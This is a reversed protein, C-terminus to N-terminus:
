PNPLPIPGVGAGTSECGQERAPLMALWQTSLVGMARRWEPVAVRYCSIAPAPLPSPLSWIATMRCMQELGRIRERRRGHCSGIVTQNCASMTVIASAFLMTGGLTEGSNVSGDCPTRDIIHVDLTHVRRQM